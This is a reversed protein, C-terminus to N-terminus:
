QVGGNRERIYTTFTEPTGVYLMDSGGDRIVWWDTLELDENDSPIVVRGYQETLAMVEDDNEIIGNKVIELM